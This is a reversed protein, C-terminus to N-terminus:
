KISKIINIIDEIAHNYGNFYGDANPKRKEKIKEILSGMGEFKAHYSEAYDDMSKLVKKNVKGLDFAMVGNNLLCEKKSKIPTKM